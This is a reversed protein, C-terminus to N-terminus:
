RTMTSYLFGFIVLIGLVGIIILSTASSNPQTSPDNDDDDPEV